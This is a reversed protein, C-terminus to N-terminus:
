FGVATPEGMVPLGQGPRVNERFYSEGNGFTYGLQGRSFQHNAVQNGPANSANGTMPGWGIDSMNSGNMVPALVQSKFQEIQANSLQAGLTPYYGQMARGLGMGHYQARNFLTELQVIKQQTSANGIEANVMRALNRVLGPNAALESRFRSRDVNPQSPQGSPMNQAAASGQPIRIQSGIPGGVSGGQAGDGGGETGGQPRYWPPPQDRTAGTYIGGPLTHPGWLRSPRYASRPPQPRTPPQGPGRGGPQQGPLQPGRPGPGPAGGPIQRGGVTGPPFYGPGVPQAFPNGRYFQPFLQRPNLGFMRAILQELPGIGGRGGGMLMHLFSGVLQELPSQPMSGAPASTGPPTVQQGGGATTGGGGSGDAPPTFREGATGSAPLPPTNASDLPNGFEDSNAVSAPIDPRTPPLPPNQIPALNGGTGGATEVAQPRGFYPDPEAQLRNPDPPPTPTVTEPTVPTAGRTAGGTLQGGELPSVPAMEGQGADTQDLLKVSAVQTGGPTAMGTTTPEANININARGEPGYALLDGIPIRAPDGGQYPPPQAPMGGPPGGSALSPQDSPLQQGPPPGQNLGVQDAWSSPIGSADMGFAAPDGAAMGGMGGTPDGFGADLGGGMGLGGSTDAVAGAGLDGGAKGAGSAAAGGMDGM